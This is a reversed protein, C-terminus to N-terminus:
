AKTPLTLHTYSVAVPWEVVGLAVHICFTRCPVNSPYETSDRPSTFPSPYLSRPIPSGYTSVAPGPDFPAIWMAKPPAFPNGEANM